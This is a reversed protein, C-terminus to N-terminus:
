LKELRVTHTFSKTSVNLLYLGATVDSLELNFHGHSADAKREKVIRGTLDYMRFLPAENNSVAYNVTVAHQAPNPFLTINYSPNTSLAVDTIVTGGADEFRQAWEQFYINAITADHVIVINEDSRQTATNSWNYSGTVVLPDSNVDFADVIAYKHHLNYGNNDVKVNAAGIGNAGALIAYVASDAPSEVLGQALAGNDNADTIAYALETRTFAFLSFYISEDAQELVRKVQLNVADTPSFYMEVRRGGILFEHPTNSSKDPGFNSVGTNPIPGTSGFMENFEITAAKAISQDQFIIVDNADIDVQLDTFNTSGTWYVAKNPDSHNADIIVMKNHMLGYPFDDPPSKIKGVAEIFLNYVASSVSENCVVRVTVGSAAAANIATVIGNDNDLNYIAIDLSQEARDIYAKLTDDIEQNLFVANTGSSYSHDVPRNFYATIAGTSLSATMMPQVSSFSTDNATSVSLGQVYYVTAPQLGTLNASHSTVQTNDSVSQDLNNATTGYRIITNGNNQTNFSVTFANTTINSQFLNTTLVPPAGSFVIDNLDRPLLQYGTNCGSGNIPPCYQSMVGIVDLTGPPIPTGVLNTGPNIRIADEITISGDTLDYNTNGSFTGTATFSVGNIRVLEGEFAEAYGSNMTEIQPSPLPNGSNVIDFQSVPTIEFLNYYPSVTGTAELTDGRQVGSLNGGFLALGGTGDQIYRVNGFESGNIAIGKVTVTAGSAMTRATAIPTQSQAAVSLFLGGLLLVRKIM